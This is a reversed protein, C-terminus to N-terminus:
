SQESRRTERSAAKSFPASAVGRNLGLVALAFLTWQANSLGDAEANWDEGTFDVKEGAADVVSVITAPLTHSLLADPGTKMNIGYNEDQKDGERPPHKAEIEAFIKRPLASLTFTLTHEAMRNELARIQAVVPTLPNNERQDNTVNERELRAMELVHKEHEAVLALNTCLPVTTTPLSLGLKSM